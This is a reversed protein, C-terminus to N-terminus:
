LAIVARVAAAFARRRRRSVEVRMGNELIAILGRRPTARLERVSTVRVLAGRHARAFGHSAIREELADLSERM